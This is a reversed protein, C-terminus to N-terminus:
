KKYLISTRKQWAKEMYMGIQKWEYKMLYVFKNENDFSAFNVNKAKVYNYMDQRYIDYQSCECIFHFENEIKQQDCVQCIRKDEKENNFRGVEIRIPLIGCRIQALLSRQFRSSCYKVYNETGYEDKFTIYTRLKPKTLINEKWTEAHMCMNISQLAEIDCVNRDIFVNEHELKTFISKVESCWNNRCLNYDHQFVKYTIRTNDMNMLRNWFRLMETHRRIDCPIWGTDGEIAYLPAKSHVGLYYRIARQQIKSCCDFKGYGWIGSCYDMVSVVGTNYMKSFTNFGVNKFSQFKSIVGGLARGAAGALTNAIVNYDLHENLYVGLYKYRDVIDVSEQGMKFDYDTRKVRKNRFHVVKTKDINVKLKWKQCWDHVCDLLKQLQVEDDAFIVIDDAFLLTCLIDNNIDIGINLNKLTLVLDNIFLSFLTPSLTDGQRVGSETEFWETNYSNINVRSMPHNYLAKICKYINGDINYSLLRYFLLNRNVWDFAKQMDIFCAYTHKKQELRNRVISTFTFIHDACSRKKRFGNQEDVIINHTECYNM